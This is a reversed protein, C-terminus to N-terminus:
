VRENLDSFGLGRNPYGRVGAADGKRNHGLKMVYLTQRREKSCTDSVGISM